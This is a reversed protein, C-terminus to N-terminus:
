HSSNLCKQFQNLLLVHLNGPARRGKFYVKAWFYRKGLFYRMTGALLGQNESSPNTGTSVM